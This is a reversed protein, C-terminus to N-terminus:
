YFIKIITNGITKEYYYYDYYQDSLIVIKYINTTM